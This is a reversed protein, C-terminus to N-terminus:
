ITYISIQKRPSKQQFRLQSSKIYTLSDNDIVLLYAM